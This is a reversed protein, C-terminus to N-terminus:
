EFELLKNEEVMLGTLGSSIIANKLRESVYVKHAFPFLQFMDLSSIITNPFVNIRESKVNWKWGYEEKKHKYEDFSNLAIIGVQKSINREVFRSKSFDICDTLNQNLQIWYYTHINGKDDTVQADYYKHNMLTFSDFLERFNNNILFGTASIDGPSLCDTLVAGDELLFSLPENIIPFDEKILSKVTQNDCTCITQLGGRVMYNIDNSLSFVQM